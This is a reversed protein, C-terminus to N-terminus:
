RWVLPNAFEEVGKESPRRIDVGLLIGQSSLFPLWLWAPEPRFGELM